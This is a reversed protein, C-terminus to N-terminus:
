RILIVTGSPAPALARVFDSSLLARNSIRVEDLLGRFRLAADNNAACLTVATSNSVLPGAVGTRTNADQQGDIYVRMTQDAASWTGAVHTWKGAQVGTASALKVTANTNLVFEVKNSNLRLMYSTESLSWGWKAVIVQYQNTVAEPKVYAELTIANTPALSAASPVSIAAYGTGTNTMSDWNPATFDPRATGLPLVRGGETQDAPPTADAYYFTNIASVTGNNGYLSSDAVVGNTGGLSNGAANNDFRWYGVVHSSGPVFLFDNTALVTNGIRVEDLRGDILWKGVRVVSTGAHIPGTFNATASDLVGNVYLRMTNDATSWTAAVHNWAKVSLPLTGTIGTSATGNSSLVFRLCGSIDMRFAYSQGSGGPDAWKYVIEDSTGVPLSYPKVWAEITIANTLDLSNADPVVVKKEIGNTPSGLSLRNNVANPMWLPVDRNYVLNTYGSAQGHNGQGSSDKIEGLTGAPPQNYTGEEYHWYGVTAAQMRGALAAVVVISTLTRKM